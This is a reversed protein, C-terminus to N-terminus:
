CTSPTKVSFFIQAESDKIQIDKKNEERTFSFSDIHVYFCFLLVEFGLKPAVHFLDPIM